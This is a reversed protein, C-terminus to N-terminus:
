RTVITEFEKLQIRYLSVVRNKNLERGIELIGSVKVPYPTYDIDVRGPIVKIIENLRPPPTYCFPCRPLNPNRDLVFFERLGMTDSVPPMMYGEVQIEKGEMQKVEAPPSEKDYDWSRMLRFLRSSEQDILSLSDTPSRRIGPLIGLSLVILALLFMKIRVKTTSKLSPILKKQPFYIEQWIEAGYAGILPLLGVVSFFLVSFILIFLENSTFPPSNFYLGFRKGIITFVYFALIRGLLWGSLIGMSSTMFAESLIIATLTTKKAGIARMLGIDRWRENIASYISLFVTIGATLIILLALGKLLREAGQSIQFLRNLTPATLVSQLESGGGYKAALDFLGQQSTPYVLIATLRKSPEGPAEHLHAKWIFELQPFIARDIMTGTSSLIGVVIPMLHPERDNQSELELLPVRDGIKLGLKKKVEQGIVIENIDHEFYKGEELPYRRLFRFYDKTTGVVPFGQYRDSVALPIAKEVFDEKILTKFIEYDITGLPEDLFFLSNLVLQLPSGKPGFLLPPSKIGEMMGQQFGQSLVFVLVSTGVGVMISIVTLLTALPRGKFFKLSSSFVNM